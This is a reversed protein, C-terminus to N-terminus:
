VLSGGEKGAAGMEEKEVVVEVEGGMWNVKNYKKWTRTFGSGLFDMDRKVDPAEGPTEKCDFLREKRLMPGHLIM